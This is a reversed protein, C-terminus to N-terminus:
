SRLAENKRGFPFVTICRDPDGDWEVALGVQQCIRLVEDGIEKSTRGVKFLTNGKEDNVEVDSFRLSMAIPRAEKARGNQILWETQMVKQQEPRDQQHFFVFGKSALKPDEPNKEKREKYENAIRAGACSSCCTFSQRADFGAKRLERFLPSLEKM